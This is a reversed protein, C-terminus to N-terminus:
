ALGPAAVAAAATTTTAAAAAAALPPSRPTRPFGDPAPLQVDGAFQCPGALPPLPPYARSIPPEPPAPSAPPARTGTDKSPAPSKLPKRTFTESPAKSPGSASPAEPPESDTCNMDCHPPPRSWRVCTEEERLARTEASKTAGSTVSSVSTVILAIGM